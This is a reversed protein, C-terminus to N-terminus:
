LTFFYLTMVNASIMIFQQFVMITKALDSNPYVDSFGVGAQVTTALFLYDILTMKDSRENHFHKDGMLQYTVAFITICLFSFILARVALKM